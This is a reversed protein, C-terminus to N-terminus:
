SRFYSLVSRCDTVLCKGIDCPVAARHARPDFGRPVAHVVIVLDHSASQGVWRRDVTLATIALCSDRRALIIDRRIRRDRDKANALLASCMDDLSRLFEICGARRLDRAPHLALPAPPERGATIQVPRM